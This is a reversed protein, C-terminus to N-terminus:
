DVGQTDFVEIISLIPTGLDVSIAWLEDQTKLKLYSNTPWPLLAGGAPNEVDAPRQGIRINSSSSENLLMIEVRKSSRGCVRTPESGTAPVTIHRPSASTWTDTTDQDAVIYVPVPTPTPTGPARGEPPKLSHSSNPGREAEARERTTGTGPMVGHANLPKVEPPADPVPIAQRMIQRNTIHVQGGPIPSPTGQMRDSMGLGQGEPSNPDVGNTTAARPAKHRGAERGM